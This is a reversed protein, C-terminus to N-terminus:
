WIIGRYRVMSQMMSTPASVYPTTVKSHWSVSPANYVPEAWSITDGYNRYGDIAVWHGLTVGTPYFNPRNDYKTININAAIGYDIEVDFIINSKLEALTPSQKAMYYASNLNSNLVDAMLYRNTYWPTSGHIETQMQNSAALQTQTM